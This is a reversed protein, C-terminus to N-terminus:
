KTPAKKTLNWTLEWSTSGSHGGGFPREKRATGQLHKPDKGVQGTIALQSLVAPYDYFEESSPGSRRYTYSRKRGNAIDWKPTVGYKGTRPNINVLIEADASDSVSGETSYSHNLIRTLVQNRLAQQYSKGESKLEGRSVAIGAGDQLTFTIEVLEEHSFSSEFNTPGSSDSATSKYRYKIEGSWGGCKPDTAVVTSHVTKGYARGKLKFTAKCVKPPAKAVAFRLKMDEYHKKPADTYHDASYDCFASPNLGGKSLLTLRPTVKERSIDFCTSNAPTNNRLGFDVFEGFKIFSAAPTLSFDDENLNQCNRYKHNNYCNPAAYFPIANNWPLASENLCANGPPYVRALPVTWKYCTSGIFNRAGLAFCSSGASRNVPEGGGLPGDYDLCCPTTNGPACARRLCSSPVPATTTSNNQFLAPEFGELGEWWAAGHEYASHGGGEEPNMHQHLQQKLKLITEPPRGSKEVFTVSPLVAFPKDDAVGVYIKLNTTNTPRPSVEVFGDTDIMYRRKGIEIWYGTAPQPSFRLLSEAAIFSAGTLEEVERWQSATMGQTAAPDFVQDVQFLVRAVYVESTQAHSSKCLVFALLCFWTFRAHSWPM